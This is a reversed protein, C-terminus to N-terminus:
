FFIFILEILHFHGLSIAPPLFNLAIFNCNQILGAVFLSYSTISNVFFISASRLFVSAIEGDDQSSQVVLPTPYSLEAFALLSKLLCWTADIILIKAVWRGTLVFGHFNCSTQLSHTCLACGRVSVPWMQIHISFLGLSMLIWWDGPKLPSDGPRPASDLGWIASSEVRWPAKIFSSWWTWLWWHGFIWPQHEHVVPAMQNNNDVKCRTKFLCASPSVLDPCMWLRSTFNCVLM